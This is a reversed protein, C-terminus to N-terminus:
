FDLKNAKKVEEIALHELFYYWSKFQSARKALDLMLNFGSAGAGSVMVDQAGKEKWYPHNVNKYPMRRDWCSNGIPDVLDFMMWDYPKWSFNSKIAKITWGNISIACDTAIIKNIKFILGYNGDKAHATESIKIVYDFQKLLENVNSDPSKHFSQFDKIVVYYVLKTSM